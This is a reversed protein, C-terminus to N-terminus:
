ALLEDRAALGVLDLDLLALADPVEDLLERAVAEVLAQCRLGADLHRVAAVLGDGLDPRPVAHEGLVPDVRRARHARAPHPRYAPEAEGVAHRDAAGGIM